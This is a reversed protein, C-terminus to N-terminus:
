IVCFACACFFVACPQRFAKSQMLSARARCCRGSCHRRRVRPCWSSAERFARRLLMRRLASQLRSAARAEHLAWAEGRVDATSAENDRRRGWFGEDPHVGSGRSARSCRNASSMARAAAPIPAPAASGSSSRDSEPAAVAPPKTPTVALEPAYLSERSPEAPATPQPPAKRRWPWPSRSRSPTRDQRPMHPRTRENQAAKSWRKRPRAHMMGLISFAGLFAIASRARCEHLVRSRVRSDVSCRGRQQVARPQRSRQQAACGESLLLLFTGRHVSYDARRRAPKYRPNTRRATRHGSVGPSSESIEDEGPHQM